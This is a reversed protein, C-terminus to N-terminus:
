PQTSESFLLNSKTLLSGPQKSEDDDGVLMSGNAVREVAEGYDTTVDQVGDALDSLM